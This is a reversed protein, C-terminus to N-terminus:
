SLQRILGSDSFLFEKCWPPVSTVSFISKVVFPAFLVFSLINLRLSRMPRLFLLRFIEGAFAGLRLPQLVPLSISESHSTLPIQFESVFFLDSFRYRGCLMVQAVDYPRLSGLNLSNRLYKLKAGKRRPPIFEERTTRNM